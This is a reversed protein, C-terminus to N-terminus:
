KSFHSWQFPDVANTIILSLQMENRNGRSKTCIEMTEGKIQAMPVMLNEEKITTKHSLM